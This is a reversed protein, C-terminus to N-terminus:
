DKTIKNMTTYVLRNRFWSNFFFLYTLMAYNLLVLATKHGDMFGSSVDVSISCVLTTIGYATFLGNMSREGRTVTLNSAGRRIRLLSRVNMALSIVFVTLLLLELIVLSIADTKPM